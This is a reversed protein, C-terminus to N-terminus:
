ASGVKADGFDKNLANKIRKKATQFDTLKKELLQGFVKHLVVGMTKELREYSLLRSMRAYGDLSPLVDVPLTPKKILTWPQDPCTSPLEAKM